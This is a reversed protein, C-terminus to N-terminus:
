RAYRVILHNGVAWIDDASVASVSYLTVHTYREFPTHQVRWSKGDWHAVLPTEPAKGVDAFDNQGVIWVDTSSIAAIDEYDDYTMWSSAQASRASGNWSVFSPGNGSLDFNLTWVDGTRSVDVARAYPGSGQEDALPSAVRRWSHGDWHLVYDTYGYSEQRWDGEMGAAWVDNPARADIANLQGLVPAVRQLNVRRWGSGDWHMMLPWTKHAGWGGVAWIDNPRPAAVDALWAYRGAVAPMAVRRWSRGDWHASLPIEHANPYKGWSVNGVSWVDTPSVASVGTLAANKWPLPTTLLTRGNWHVVGGGVAWVDSPSRADVAVLTPVRVAFVQWRPAGSSSPTATAAQGVGVAVALATALAFSFVVHRVM